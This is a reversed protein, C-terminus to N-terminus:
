IKLHTYALDRQCLRDIQRASSVAEITAFLWLAMGIKPDVADRGPMGETAQIKAYLPSLDLSDVYAWVIRARHDAPLLQDLAM